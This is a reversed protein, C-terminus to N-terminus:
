RIADVVLVALALGLFLTYATLERGRQGLAAQRTLVWCFVAAELAAGAVGWVPRWLGAVVSAAAFAHLVGLLSVVWLRRGDALGLRTLGELRAVGAPARVLGAVASPVAEALLLVTVIVAVVFM